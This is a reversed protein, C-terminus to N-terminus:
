SLPEEVGASSVEVRASMGPIMRAPDSEDLALDVRFYRRLSRRGEERAVPTVGAVEGRFVQDPYADLVVRAPMGAEVRGDDVDPLRAAVRLSTLDPITGLTMGVWVTDGVQLKRSERPHEGVLFLGDEPARLVSREIARRAQEIERRAKDIEIQQIELDAQGSARQTALEAEAQELETRAKEFELRLDAVDKAPAIGEPLNADIRAKELEARARRVAFEKLRTEALIQAEERELESLKEQLDIEKDELDRVFESNDIEAVRDGAEVRSGDEALWRLEVRWTPSRPVAMSAGEAAEIEGSLLVTEELSGRHTPLHEGRTAAPTELLAGTPRDGGCAGGALTLCALFGVRFGGHKRPRRFFRGHPRRETSRSSPM